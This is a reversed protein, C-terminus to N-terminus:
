AVPQGELQAYMTSKARRGFIATGTLFAGAVGLLSFYIPHGIHIGLVVLVVLVALAPGFVRLALKSDQARAISLVTRMQAIRGPRDDPPTDDKPARAMSRPYPHLCRPPLRPETGPGGTTASWRGGPTAALM